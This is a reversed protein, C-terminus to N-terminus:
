FVEPKAKKVPKKGHKKRWEKSMKMLRAHQKWLKAAGEKKGLKELMKANREVIGAYHSAISYRGGHKRLYREAKEVLGACQATIRAAERDRAQEIVDADTKQRLVERGAPDCLWLGGRGPMWYQKDKAPMVGTMALLGGSPALATRGPLFPLKVRTFKLTKTDLLLMGTFEPAGWHGYSVSFVAQSGDPAAALLRNSQRPHRTKVPPPLTLQRARGTAVDVLAMKEADNANGRPRGGAGTGGPPPPAGEGGGIGGGGRKVAERRLLLGGSGLPTYTVQKMGYLAEGLKRFGQKGAKPTWVVLEGRTKMFGRNKAPKAPDRVEAVEVVLRGDSLMVVAQPSWIGDPYSTKPPKGAFSDAATFLTRKESGPLSISCFKSGQAYFLRKSDPSWFPARSVFGGRPSTNRGSKPQAKFTAVVKGGAVDIVRYEQLAHWKKRAKQCCLLFKGNPSLCLPGEVEPMEALVEAKFEKGQPKVFWLKGRTVALLGRVKPRWALFSIIEKKPFLVQRFDGTTLDMIKIGVENIKKRSARPNEYVIYQFAVRRGDPSWHAPPTGHPQSLSNIIQVLLRGKWEPKLKVAVPTKTQAAPEAAGLLKGATPVGAGVLTVGGLVVAAVKVKAWFMMKLAGKAMAAAGAGAATLGAASGLASSLKGSAALLFEPCASETGLEVLMGTLTAAPLGLGTRALRARLKEVGRHVHRAVTGESVGMSEAVQRHSRGELYHLLVSERQARPLDQVARDLRERLETWARDSPADGSVDRHTLMRAAEKERARLAKQRKRERLSVRLAVGHLFAGPAKRVSGAKRALVLFVAQAADEAADHTGLVRRCTHYVMGGHLSVLAEFAGEAEPGGRACASLLEADSSKGVLQDM